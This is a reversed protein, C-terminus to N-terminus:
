DNTEQEMLPSQELIARTYLRALTLMDFADGYQTALSFQVLRTLADDRVLTSKELGAVRGIGERTAPEDFLSLAFLMKKEHEELLKFSEQFCFQCVDEHPQGLGDLVASLTKGGSVQAVSWVMALPIGGTKDYLRKLSQDALHVSKKECEHHMLAMSEDLSMGTLRIDYAVNIRHRTTVIAKSPIPLERLFENVREDEVVELNDLVLLIREQSFAHRLLNLREEASANQLESYQLVRTAIVFLDDFNSFAQQRPVIGTPTLVERKASMWVIADFMDKERCRHAVELALTTKGIGGIGDVTMAGMRHGPGLVRMATKLAQQRGVFEIYDRNPLNSRFSRHKIAKAAEKSLEKRHELWIQFLVVIAGGLITSCLGVLITIIQM